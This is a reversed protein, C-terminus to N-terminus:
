HLCRSISPPHSRFAHSKGIEHYRALQVRVLLRRPSALECLPTRRETSELALEIVPQTELDANLVEEQV